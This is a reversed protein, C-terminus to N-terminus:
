TAWMIMGALSTFVADGLMPLLWTNRPGLCFACAAFM